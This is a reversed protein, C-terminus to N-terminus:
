RQQPCTESQKLSHPSKKTQRTTKISMTMMMNLATNTTSKTSMNMTIMMTMLTMTMNHVDEDDHKCDDSNEHADKDDHEVGHEDDVENNTM